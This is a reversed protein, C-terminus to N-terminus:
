TNVYNQFCSYLISQEIPTPLYTFEIFTVLYPLISNKNEFFVPTVTIKNDKVEILSPIEPFSDLWKIDSEVNRNWRYYTVDDNAQLSGNILNNIINKWAPLHKFIIKNFKKINFLDSPTVIPMSYLTEIIYDFLKLTDSNYSENTIYRKVYAAYIENTEMIETDIPAYDETIMKNGMILVPMYSYIPEQPAILRTLEQHLFPKVLEILNSNVHVDFNDIYFYDKSIENIEHSLSIIEKLENRKINFDSLSVCNTNHNVILCGLLSCVISDATCKVYVEKSNTM